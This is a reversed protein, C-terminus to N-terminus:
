CWHAPADKINDVPATDNVCAECVGEKGGEGKGRADRRRHRLAVLAAYAVVVSTYGSEFAVGTVSSWHLRAWTAQM